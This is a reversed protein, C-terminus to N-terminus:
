NKIYNECPGALFHVIQAGESLQVVCERLGRENQINKASSLFKTNIFGTEGNAFVVAIITALILM